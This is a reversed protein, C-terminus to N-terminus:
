APVKEPEAPAIQPAAPEKVPAEEPVPEPIVEVHRLPEGIDGMRAPELAVAKIYAVHLAQGWTEGTDQALQADQLVLGAATGGLGPLFSAAAGQFNEFDSADAGARVLALGVMCSPRGHHTYVCGNEFDTTYVFNAGREQVARELLLYAERAGTIKPIM